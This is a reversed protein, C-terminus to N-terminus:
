SWFSRLRAAALPYVLSHLDFSAANMLLPLSNGCPTTPLRSASPLRSADSYLKVVIQEEDYQKAAPRRSNFHHLFRIMNNISNEDIGVSTCSCDNWMKDIEQLTLDNPERYCNAKRLLWAEHGDRPHAAQIM